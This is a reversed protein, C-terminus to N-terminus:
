FIETTKVTVLLETKVSQLRGTAGREFINADIISNVATRIQQATLTTNANNIRVSKTKGFETAFGLLFYSKEEM